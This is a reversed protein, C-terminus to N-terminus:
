THEESRGFRGARSNPGQKVCRNLFEQHSEEKEAHFAPNMATTMEKAPGIVNIRCAASSPPSPCSTVVEQTHAADTQVPMTVRTILRVIRRGITAAQDIGPETSSMAPKCCYVM